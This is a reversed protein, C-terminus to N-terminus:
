LQGGWGMLMLGWKWRFLFRDRRSHVMRGYECSERDCGKKDRKAQAQSRFDSGHIRDCLFDVSSIVIASLLFKDSPDHYFPKRKSYDNSCNLRFMSSYIHLLYFHYCVYSQSVEAIDFSREAETVLGITLSSNSDNHPLPVGSFPWLVGLTCCLVLLLLLLLLHSTVWASHLFLWNIMGANLFYWILISFPIKDLTAM